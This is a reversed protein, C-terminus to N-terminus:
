YIYYIIITNIYIIYLMYGEASLIEQYSVSEIFTYKISLIVIQSIIRVMWGLRIIISDLLVLLM